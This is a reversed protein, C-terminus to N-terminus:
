NLRVMDKFHQSPQTAIFRNVDVRSFIGINYVNEEYWWNGTDHDAYRANYRIQGWEDSKLTFIPTYPIIRYNRFSAENSPDRCFTVALSDADMSLEICCLGMDPLSSRKYVTENAQFDNYEGFGVRHTAYRGAFCELPLAFCHPLSNRKRAGEGGRSAKTWSIGVHQIIIKPVM